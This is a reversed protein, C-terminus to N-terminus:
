HEAKEKLIRMIGKLDLDARFLLFINTICSFPNNPSYKYIRLLVNDECDKCIM